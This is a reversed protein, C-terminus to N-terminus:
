EFRVAEMPDVRSARRAPIAFAALAVLGFLLAVAVYTMPDTPSVGALIKGTLGSAARAGAIGLLLGAGVFGM